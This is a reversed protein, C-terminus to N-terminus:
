KITIKKGESIQKDSLRDAQLNFIIKSQKISPNLENLKQKLEYKNYFM